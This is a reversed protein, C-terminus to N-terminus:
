APASTSSPRGGSAPMCSRPLGDHSGLIVAKMDAQNPRGYDICGARLRISCDPCLWAHFESWQCQSGGNGQREQGELCVSLGGLLAVVEEPEALDVLGGCDDVGVFAQEVFGKRGQDVLADGLHQGVAVLRAALPRVEDDGELRQQDLGGTRLDSQQVGAARALVHQGGRTGGDQTVLHEVQGLREVLGGRLQDFQGALM